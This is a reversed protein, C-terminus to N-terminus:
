LKHKKNTDVVTTLDTDVKLLSKNALAHQLKHMLSGLACKNTKLGNEGQM